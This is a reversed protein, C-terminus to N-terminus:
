KLIIESNEQNIMQEIEDWVDKEFGRKYHKKGSIHKIVVLTGELEIKWERVHDKIYDILEKYITQYDQKSYKNDPDIDIFPLPNYYYHEYSKYIHLKLDEADVYCGLPDISLKFEKNEKIWKM